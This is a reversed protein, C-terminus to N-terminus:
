EGLIRSLLENREKESIYPKMKVDLIKAERNRKKKVAQNLKSILDNLDFPKELYDFAGLKLSEVASNIASYGSIIIVEILPNKTKIKGLVKIGDIDPLRLDLIVIDISDNKELQNLADTGTFACEATFGRKRLRETVARVFEEEDDVLLFNIESVAKEKMM